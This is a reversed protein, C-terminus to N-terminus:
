LLAGAEPEPEPLDLDSEPEPERKGRAARALACLVFDFVDTGLSYELGFDAAGNLGGGGLRGSFRPPALEAGSSRREM